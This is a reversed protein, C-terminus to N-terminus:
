RRLRGQKHTKLYQRLTDASPVHWGRRLSEDWLRDIAPQMDGGGLRLWEELLFVRAERPWREVRGVGPSPFALGDIGRKAYADLWRYLTTRSPAWGHEARHKALFLDLPPRTQSCAPRQERWALFADLVKARVEADRRKHAPLLIHKSHKPSM